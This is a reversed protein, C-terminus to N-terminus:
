RFAVLLPKGTEKAVRYGEEIDEYVWDAAVVKRDGSTDGEALSHAAGFVLGAGALLAAALTVHLARTHSM